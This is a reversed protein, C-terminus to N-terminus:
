SELQELGSRERIKSGLKGQSNQIGRSLDLIERSLSCHSSGLM